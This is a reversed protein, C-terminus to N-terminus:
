IRRRRGACDLPLTKVAIQVTEHLKPLVTDLITQASREENWDITDIDWKIAKWLLKEAADYSIRQIPLAGFGTKNVIFETSGM